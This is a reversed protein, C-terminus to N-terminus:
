THEESRFSHLGDWNGGGLFNCLQVVVILNDDDGTLDAASVSRVAFVHSGISAVFGVAVNSRSDAIEELILHHPPDSVFARLLLWSWARACIRSRFLLGARCATTPHFNHIRPCRALARYTRLGSRGAPSLIPRFGVGTGRRAAPRSPARSTLFSTM